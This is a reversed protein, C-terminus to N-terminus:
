FIREVRCGSIGVETIAKKNGYPIYYLGDNSGTKKELAKLRGKVELSKDFNSARFILNFRYSVPYNNKNILFIVVGNDKIGNGESYYIFYIELGNKEFLKNLPSFRKQQGAAFSSFILLLFIVTKM